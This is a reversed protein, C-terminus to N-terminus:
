GGGYSLCRSGVCNTVLQLGEGRRRVRVGGEGSAFV